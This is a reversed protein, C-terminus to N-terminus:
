LDVVRLEADYDPHVPVQHTLHVVKGTQSSEVMGFIAEATAMGWEGSHYVPANNIVAEYMEHIEGRADVDSEGTVERVGNDSYILVGNSGIRMDGRECTVIITGPDGTDNLGTRDGVERTIQHGFNGRSPGEVKAAEFQKIETDGGIRLDQKAADEDRTGDRMAKRIEVLSEVSARGAAPGNVDGLTFYGYGNHTATAIAGNAFDFTASYYGPIPREPMWDGVFGRVNKIMGGGLLRVTDIQHPGQRMVLGGGQAMDLEEAVRPRLLWDTYAWFNISKVAGLDGSQIINYMKRFPPIFSRTHGAILIQGTRKSTDIMAQAQELNLAMPKEVIVHKGHEMAYIAHEAHFRNPTSIWIAEVEKDECLTEISEYAKAEYRATFRERTLPNMDAGAILELTEMQEFAPLMETGGVGIGLMAIGLKRETTM